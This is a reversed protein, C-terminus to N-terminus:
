PMCAQGLAMEDPIAGDCLGDCFNAIQGGPQLFTTVQRIAAPITPRRSHPDCTSNPILNALPPLAPAHAPNLIDMEGLHWISLASDVPGPVDPMGVLGQQISGALLPLDLTRAAIETCTNSVQKDLWAPTLLVRKPGGAGPLPDSTIRQAVSVPEASAWLEHTLQIGLAADLPDTIGIGTLLADFAAFPAARQLLCSFNIAPVDLAFREIDPTLGALYTGMIGGLSAGYYFVEATPGPFVGADGPTRFAEDRNFLGLKVMRTLVLTNLMGQRLRAPFAAFNHLQSENVGVIREGVWAVDQASLGRWDTAAALGNWETIQGVLSPIVGTMDAGRGFLGHGLVLPRVVPTLDLATCPISVAFSPMTLGNQVPTGTADVNMVPVSDGTPEGTLFLPSEFTGSVDRWVVQGAEECDHEVVNTVTFNTAMPDAAVTDLFAYAQDRMSSIQGSLSEQSQVVFDFALILNERAIGHTALVAFVDEMSARRREIDPDASKVGDRLAAFPPEAVVPEGNPTLLNRVAVVYRHGPELLRAPRLFLIQRAPDTARADPEVFHLIREGSAADLLVTPSDPDLSRDDHTRTDIFPPGPPQGCCQAPLLRSANSRAPDVGQPFNMLVQVGPSFGDLGDFMSAPIPTGDVRPIGAQPIRVRVGTPTDAPFLFHSSPYPLLCSAANLVECEPEPPPCAVPVGRKAVLQRGKRLQKLRVRSGDAAAFRTCMRYTMGDIANEVTLVATIGGADSPPAEPLALVRGGDGLGFAFVRAAKGERVKAARVTTPGGPAQPNAFRAVKPKNRKWPSPLVFAGSVSSPRDTYFVELMGELAAPEQRTPPAAGKKVAPDRVVFLVRDEGADTVILRAGAVPIDVAAAPIAGALSALLLAGLLLHRRTAHM